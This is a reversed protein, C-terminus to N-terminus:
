CKCYVHESLKYLLCVSMRQKIKRLIIILKGEKRERKEKCVSDSDTEIM